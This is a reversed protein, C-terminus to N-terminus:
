VRLTRHEECKKKGIAIIITERFCPMSCVHKLKCGSDYIEKYM